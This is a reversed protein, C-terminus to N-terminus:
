GEAVRVVRRFVLPDPSPRRVCWVSVVDGHRSTWIADKGVDARPIYEYEIVYRGPPLVSVPSGVLATRALVCGSIAAICRGLLGRRSLMM